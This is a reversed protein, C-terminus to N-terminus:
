TRSSRGFSFVWVRELGLTDEIVALKGLQPFEDLICLVPLVKTKNM